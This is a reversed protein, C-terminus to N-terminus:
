LGTNTPSAEEPSASGKDADGRTSAPAIQTLFVISQVAVSLIMFFSVVAWWPAVPLQVVWTTQGVADLDITYLVIQWALLIFFVWTVFAAFAELWTRVTPGLLSGLFNISVHHREALAFPFFASIAIAVVLPAIDTIGDVPSNFLWRMLVDFNTMVILAVLALMGFLACFRAAIAGRSKLKSLWVRM